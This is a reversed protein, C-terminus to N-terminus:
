ALWRKSLRQAVSQNKLEVAMALAKIGNERAAPENGWKEYVDALTDHALMAAPSVAGEVIANELVLKALTNAQEINELQLYALMLCSFYLQRSEFNGNPWSYVDFSELLQIVEQDAGKDVLIRALNLKTQRCQRPHERKKNAELADRYYREASDEKGEREAISGLLRLLRTHMGHRSLSRAVKVNEAAIEKAQDLNALSYHAYAEEYFFRLRLSVANQSGRSARLLEKQIGDCIELAERYEGFQNHARAMKALAVLHRPTSDVFKFSAAAGELAEFAEKRSGLDAM